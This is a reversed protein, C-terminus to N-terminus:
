PNSLVVRKFTLSKANFNILLGVEIKYARLYNLIQALHVDTIEAVAKIEVLIKQEVLFDVRRQGIPKPYDKSYIDMELERAFDPPVKNMELMIARQYIVEQFGNDFFSHVNFSCGIIQEAINKFKLEQIM